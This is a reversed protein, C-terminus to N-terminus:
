DSTLLRAGQRGPRVTSSLYQNTSLPFSEQAKTEVTKKYEFLEKKAIFRANSPAASIEVFAVLDEAHDAVFSLWTIGAL